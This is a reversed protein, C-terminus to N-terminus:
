SRASNSFSGVKLEMSTCRRGITNKMRTKIRATKTRQISLVTSIIGRFVAGDVKV